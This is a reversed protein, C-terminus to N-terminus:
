ACLSFRSKGGLQGFAVARHFVIAAARTVGLRLHGLDIIENEALIRERIEVDGRQACTCGETVEVASYLPV